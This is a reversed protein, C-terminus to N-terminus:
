VIWVPQESIRLCGFGALIYPCPRALRETWNVQGGDRSLPPDTSHLAGPVPADPPPRPGSPMMSNLTNRGLPLPVPLPPLDLFESINLMEEELGDESVMKINDPDIRRRQWYSNLRRKM